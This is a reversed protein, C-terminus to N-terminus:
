RDGTVSPSTAALGPVAGAYTAVADYDLKIMVNVPPTPRGLLAPDTQALASSPAKFGRYGSPYRPSAPWNSTRNGCAGSM